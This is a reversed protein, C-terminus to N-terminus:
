RRRFGVRKERARSAIREDDHILEAIAVTAQAIPRGDPDLVTGRIAGTSADQSLVRLNFLLCGLVIAVRAFHRLTSPM